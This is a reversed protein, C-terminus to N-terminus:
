NVSERASSTYANSSRLDFATPIRLFPRYALTYKQYVDISERMYKKKKKIPSVRNAPFSYLPFLFCATGFRNLHSLPNYLLNSIIRIFGANERFVCRYLFRALYFIEHLDISGNGFHALYIYLIRESLLILNGHKCFFRFLKSKTCLM